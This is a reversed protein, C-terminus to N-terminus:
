KNKQGGARLRKAQFNTITQRNVRQSGFLFKQLQWKAGFLNTKRVEPVLYLKRNRVQGDVKRGVVSRIIKNESFTNTRHLLVTYRKKYLISNEVLLHFYCRSLVLLVKYLIRFTFNKPFFKLLSSAFHM